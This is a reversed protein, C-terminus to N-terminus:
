STPRPSTRTCTLANRLGKRALAIKNLHHQAPWCALPGTGTRPPSGWRGAKWAGGRSMRRFLEELSVKGGLFDKISEFDDLYWSPMFDRGAASGLCELRRSRRSNFFFVQQSKCTM